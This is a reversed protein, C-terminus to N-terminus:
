EYAIADAIRLRVARLAPLLGALTAVGMGLLVVGGLQAWPVQAPFTFGTEDLLIVHLAYWELPIGFLVGIVAGVVGMLMAEALVSRLVQSRSAGVARLLGLERRRQLVSILLATLVGLAAVIVVVLEQAYSFVSMRRIMGRILDRLKVRTQVFLSEQAGWRRQITEAVADANQEPGGRSLTTWPLNAPFPAQPTGSLASPLQLRAQESEPRLYLEYIDVLKDDFQAKYQERDMFVSGRNWDYDLITGIVRLEVPGHPGRLSIHDGVAVHHQAAFNDSVIVTGPERLRPFAELGPMPHELREPTYFAAADLAIMYVVIKDRFYVRQFRLPVVKEVEPLGALLQGIREDM